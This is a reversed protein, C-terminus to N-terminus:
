RDLTLKGLVAGRLSLNVKKSLADRDAAEKNVAYALSEAFLMGIISGARRREHPDGDRLYKEAVDCLEEMDPAPATLHAEGGKERRQEISYRIGRKIIEVKGDDLSELLDRHESFKGTVIEELLRKADEPESEAYIFALSFLADESAIKRFGEAFLKEV